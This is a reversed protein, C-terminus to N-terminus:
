SDGWLPNLLSDQIYPLVMGHPDTHFGLPPSWCLAGSGEREAEQVMIHAAKSQWESLYEAM